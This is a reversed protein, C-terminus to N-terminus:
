YQRNRAGLILGSSKASIPLVLMGNTRERGANIITFAHMTASHANQHMCMTTSHAHACASNAQWVGIFVGSRRVPDVEASMKARGAVGSLSRCRISMWERYGDVRLVIDIWTSVSRQRSHIQFPLCVSYCAPPSQKWSMRSRPLPM